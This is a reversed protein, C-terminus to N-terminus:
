PRSPPTRPPEQQGARQRPQVPLRILFSAGEGSASEYTLTGNLETVVRHCISLGLGTGEGVPKTTFFPDFIRPLHEEAIGPGNDTFAMEVWPRQDHSLPKTTVTLIGPGRTKTMAQRANTIVHLFVQTLAQPNTWVLPLGRAFNTRVEIQHLRLDNVVVSLTRQILANLDCQERRGRDSPSVQLFRHVLESARQTAEQMAALDEVLSEYEGRSAKEQALQLFGSLMFLPNNLEHALGGLLTGLAAVKDTQRLQQEMRKRETLDRAVLLRGAMKGDEMIPTLSLEFWTPLGAADLLEIELWSPASSERGLRALQAKAIPQSSFASILSLGFLDEMARGTMAAAQRNAWLIISEPDLYFIADHAQHIALRSREENARPEEVSQIPSTLNGLASHIAECGKPAFAKVSLGETIQRDM